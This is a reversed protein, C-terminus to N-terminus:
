YWTYVKCMLRSTVKLKKNKNKNIIKLEVINWRNILLVVLLPPSILWELLIGTENDPLRVFKCTDMIDM